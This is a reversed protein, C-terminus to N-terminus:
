IKMLKFKKKLKIEVFLKAIISVILHIMVYVVILFIWTDNNFARVIIATASISFLFSSIVNAIFFVESEIPFKTSGKNVAKFTIRSRENLVSYKFYRLTIFAFIWGIVNSFANFVFIKCFLYFFQMSIIDISLGFPFINFARAFLYFFCTNAIIQILFFSFRETRSLENTQETYQM